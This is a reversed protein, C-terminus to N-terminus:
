GPRMFLDAVKNAHAQVPVFMYKELLRLGDKSAARAFVIKPRRQSLREIIAGLIM